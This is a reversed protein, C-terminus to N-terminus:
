LPDDQRDRQADRTRLLRESEALVAEAADADLGAGRLIALVEDLGRLDEPLHGDSGYTLRAGAAAAIRAVHGNAYCHGRKATLELAVNRDAALKADDPDILGPHALVDVGAEIAARNTGPMVPEALTEGHCLVLLAGAARAREAVAPIHEPRVHTLEAGPVVLIRGRRNELEAAEVLAPVIRDVTSADVHDTIAFAVYGAVEARRILEAPCLGGDTLMTHTHLDVLASM